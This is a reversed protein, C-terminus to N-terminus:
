TEAVVREFDTTVEHALEVLSALVLRQFFGQLGHEGLDVTLLGLARTSLRAFGEKDPDFSKCFNVAISHKSLFLMRSTVAVLQSRRCSHSRETSSATM